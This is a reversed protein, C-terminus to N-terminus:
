EVTVSKALNRPKDINLNRKLATYYALYQAVMIKPLPSLYTPVDPVVIDDRDKAVSKSVVTFVRAGRALVEQMNSRIPLETLSNSIFIVVPTDKEILAIPGHKLEGGPLGESHIYTIEKLKLSAELSVDYDYGRGLFFAHQKSAIFAAIDEFQGKMAIVAKMAEILGYLDGIVQSDNKLAGTLLALLAVQAVYAKTSAVAIEIGAFLLLTFDADRDLTSGKTNTVTILPHKMQKVNKVCHILDATEGSQSLMVFVPKQGTVTPFYAWESAIYVDARMGLNEFYRKGILCAHYSTGCALFVIQDSERILQLLHPNFLYARGDHYNDILHRVVNDAEEIEKLMYHPYGELNMDECTLDTQHYGISARTSGLLDYVAVETATLYGYQHDRLAYFDKVHKLMPLYDSALFNSESGHGIVLPSHNKAFYLRSDDAQSIIVLAYSGDLQRMTQNIAKLVDHLALFNSELLNSIVETDTETLFHYGQEELSTRLARFNDIVGNHVLTFLKHESVHPHANTETPAGHTAWRTHGIGVRASIEQPVLADLQQVRGPIRYILPAEEHSFALGSSDYGRYELTKLGEILYNRLQKIGVAGVIGCM